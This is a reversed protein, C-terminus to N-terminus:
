DDSVVPMLKDFIESSNKIEDSSGVRSAEFTPFYTKNYHVLKAHSNHQKNDSFKFGLFIVNNLFKWFQIYSIFEM